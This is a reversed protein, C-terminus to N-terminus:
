RGTSGFGGVRDGAADDDSTILYPVFVGQCFRDGESLMVPEDGYNFIFVSIEFGCYDSDVVGVTNALMLHKKIGLSSRPYLHLIWRAADSNDHAVTINTKIQMGQHPAIIATEPMFFDYGCSGTTARVPLAVEKEPNFLEFHM